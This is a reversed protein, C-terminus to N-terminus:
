RITRGTIAQWAHMYRRACCVGQPKVEYYKGDSITFLMRATLTLSFKSIDTLKIVHSNGSVGTFELRDPYMAISGSEPAASAEGGNVLTLIVNEDSFLPKDPANDAEACIKVIEEKQWRDWDLTTTFPPESGDKSHFYGYEDFTLQMGCDTCELTDGHSKLTSLKKCVPCIYLATELHEAPNECTYKAHKIEQDDYANVYLDRAIAANIEDDTMSALMEPTYENVAEGWTPGKRKKPAWRPNLFYGGHIRITVLGADTGRLLAATNPSVTGTEGSFTRDGEAMMCVNLGQKLRRVIEASAEAGRAGKKRPIPNVLFKILKGTFGNRLIHESCVFYMHKKTILGALFFDWNTTHNTLVLYRDSVPRFPEWSYDTIRFYPNILARLFAYFAKHFRIM